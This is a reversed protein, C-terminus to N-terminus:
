DADGAGALTIRSTWLSQPYEVIFYTANRDALRWLSIDTCHSFGYKAINVELKYFFLYRQCSLATQLSFHVFFSRPM